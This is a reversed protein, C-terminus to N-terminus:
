KDPRANDVLNNMKSDIDINFLTYITIYICCINM